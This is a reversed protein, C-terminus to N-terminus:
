PADGKIADLLAECEAVSTLIMAIGGALRVSDLFRQQKGTPKNGPRKIELALYKGRYLVILDSTGASALNIHRGETTLHGSNVRTVVAGRRKLLNIIKRQIDAELEPKPPKPPRAAEQAKRAARTNQTIHSTM